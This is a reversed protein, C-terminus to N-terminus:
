ISSSPLSGCKKWKISYSPLKRKEPTNAWSEYSGDDRKIYRKSYIISKPKSYIQTIKGQQNREIIYESPNNTAKEIVEQTAKTQAM